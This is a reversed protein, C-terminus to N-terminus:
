SSCSRWRSTVSHSWLLSHLRVQEDQEFHIPRLVTNTADSKAAFCRTATPARLAKARMAFRQLM